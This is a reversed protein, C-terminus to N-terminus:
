NVRDYGGEVRRLREAEGKRGTEKSSVSDNDFGSGGSRRQVSLLKISSTYTCGGMKEVM